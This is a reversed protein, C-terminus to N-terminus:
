CGGDIQLDYRLTREAAPPPRDFDTRVPQRTRYVRVTAVVGGEAVVAGAWDAMVSAREDGTMKPFRGAIQFWGHFGRPLADFDVATEHGVCDVTTIQWGSVSDTRVQSFLKFGTLPWWEIGLAACVVFLALFGYAFPRTFRAPAREAVPAM